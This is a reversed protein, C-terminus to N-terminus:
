GGPQNNGITFLAIAAIALAVAAMHYVNFTERFILVGVVLSTTLISIVAYLTYQAAGFNNYLLFFGTFTLFFGFGSLTAMKWNAALYTADAGTRYVLASGGFFAACVVVAAFTFLFPNATPQAARQGYVFVANGIAALTAFLLPKLM